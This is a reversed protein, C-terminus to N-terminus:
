VTNNISSRLLQLYLTRYKKVTCSGAQWWVGCGVHRFKPPFVNNSKKNGAVGPRYDVTGAVAM